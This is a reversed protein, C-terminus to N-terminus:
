PLCRESLGYANGKRDLRVSARFWRFDFDPETLQEHSATGFISQHEMSKVYPVTHPLDGGPRVHKLVNLIEDNKSNEQWSLM